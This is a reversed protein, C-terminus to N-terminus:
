SFAMLPQSRNKSASQVYLCWSSQVACSCRALCERVSQHIRDLVLTSTSTLKRIHCRPFYLPINERTEVRLTLLSKSVLSSVLFIGRETESANFNFAICNQLHM